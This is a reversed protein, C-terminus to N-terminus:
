RVLLVPNSIKKILRLVADPDGDIVDVPLVVAQRYEAWLLAVLAPAVDGRLRRFRIQMDQRGKEIETKALVEKSRKQYAAESEAPILIEMSGIAARAIEVAVELSRLSLESGSYVTLLPATRKMKEQLILTQGRGQEVLSQVTSGLPVNKLSSGLRGIVTLDATATQELIEPIVRGRRVTFTWGFQSSEALLSMTKRIKQAQIRFDRELGTPDLRRSGTPYLMVERAFPYDCLSLLEADEVYLGTLQAGIAEALQAATELAALSQPSADLPVLITRLKSQKHKHDV